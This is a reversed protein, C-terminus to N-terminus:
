GQLGSESETSVIARPVMTAKPAEDQLVEEHIPIRRAAEATHYTAEASTAQNRKRCNRPGFSADKEYTHPTRLMHAPCMSRTSASIWPRYPGTTRMPGASSSIRSTSVRHRM